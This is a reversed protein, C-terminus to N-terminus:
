DITVTLGVSQTVNGTGPSQTGSGTVTIQTTGTAIKSTGSGGGGCASISTASIVLVLVVLLCLTLPNNRLRRRQFALCAGLALGPLYLLGAAAIRGNRSEAPYATAVMQGASITLTGTIPMAQGLYNAVTTLAAPSATCTVGAPLGECGITVSGIYNNIPTLTITV